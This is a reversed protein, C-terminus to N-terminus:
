CRSCRRAQAAGFMALAATVGALAAWQTGAEGESSGTAVMSISDDM